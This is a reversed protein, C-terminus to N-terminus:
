QIKKIVLLMGGLGGEDLPHPPPVVLQGEVAALLHGNNFNLGHDAVIRPAAFTISGDPGDSPGSQDDLHGEPTIRGV